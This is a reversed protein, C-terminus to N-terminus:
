DTSVGDVGGLIAIAARYSKDLRWWCRAEEVEEDTFGDFRAIVEGADCALSDELRAAVEAAFARSVGAMRLLMALRGGGALFQDWATEFEVGARRALAEVLIAADGEALALAFMEEDLRGARDLAHVFAFTLAEIRRGEDHAGLVSASSDSLSRDAHASGSRGEGRLAAAVAYVLVVAPEAPVDDLDIRPSDFRDRRRSRGLILAMAAASIAPDRDGALSHLFRGGKGNNSARLASGVREQEARRLLLAILPPIDLLGSAKLTEFLGAGDDNAPESGPRAAARVEDAVIGVLDALMATM